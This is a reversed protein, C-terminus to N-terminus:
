QAWRPQSVRAALGHEPVLTTVGVLLGPVAVSLLRWEGCSSFLGGLWSSGARGLIFLFFFFYKLVRVKLEM